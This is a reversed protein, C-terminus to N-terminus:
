LDAVPPVPHNWHRSHNTIHSPSSSHSHDITLPLSHLNSSHLTTVKSGSSHLHVRNLGVDPDLHDWTLTQLIKHSPNLQVITWHKHRLSKATSKSDGFPFAISLFPLHYSCDWTSEMNRVSQSVGVNKASQGSSTQWTGRTRSILSTAASWSQWPAPTAYKEFKLVGPPNLHELAKGNCSTRWWRLLKCMRQLVCTSFGCPYCLM